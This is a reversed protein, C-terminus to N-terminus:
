GATIRKRRKRLKGWVRKQLRSIEAFNEKGLFGELMVVLTKEPTPGVVVVM